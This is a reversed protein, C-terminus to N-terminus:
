KLAHSIQKFEASFLFTKLFFTDIIFIHDSQTKKKQQKLLSLNGRNTDKNYLAEEQTKGLGSQYFGSHM